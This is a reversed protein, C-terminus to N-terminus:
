CPLVFSPEYPNISPSWILALKHAVIASRFFPAVTWLSFCEHVACTVWVIILEASFTTVLRPSSVFRLCSNSLLFTWMLRAFLRSNAMMLNTTFRIFWFRRNQLLRSLLQSVRSAHRFFIWSNKNRKKLFLYWGARKQAFHMDVTFFPSLSLREAGFANKECVSRGRAWGCLLVPEAPKISIALLQGPSERGARCFDTPM